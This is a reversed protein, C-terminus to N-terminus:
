VTSRLPDRLLRRPLSGTELRLSSCDSDGSLDGTGTEPSVV